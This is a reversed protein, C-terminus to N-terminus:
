WSGASGDHNADGWYICVKGVRREESRTFNGSNYNGPGSVNVTSTFVAAGSCDPTDSPGYLNFTITGGATATAGSLTAVDHIAAGDTSCADASGNGTSKKRM